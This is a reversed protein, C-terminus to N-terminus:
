HGAQAEVHTENKMEANFKIQTGVIANVGNLIIKPPV